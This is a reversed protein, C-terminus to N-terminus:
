AKLKWFKEIWMETSPNMGESTEQRIDECTIYFTLLVDNPM